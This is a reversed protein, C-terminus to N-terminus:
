HLPISHVTQVSYSYFM